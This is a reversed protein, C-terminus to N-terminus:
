LACPSRQSLILVREDTEPLVAVRAEVPVSRNGTLPILTVQLTTKGPPVASREGLIQQEDRPFFMTLHAGQVIEREGDVLDVFRENAWVITGSRDTLLVAEEMLDLVSELEKRM